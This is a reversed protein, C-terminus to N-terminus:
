KSSIKMNRLFLIIIFKSYRIGPLSTYEKLASQGGAGVRGWRNWVWWKNKSNDIELLQIHYFKNNNQQINTQNLMSSLLLFIFYSPIEREREREGREGSV